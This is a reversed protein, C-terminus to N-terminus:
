RLVVFFVWTLLGVPTRGYIEGCKWLRVYEYQYQHLSRQEDQLFLVMDHVIGPM